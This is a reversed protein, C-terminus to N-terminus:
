ELEGEVQDKGSEDGNRGIFDIGSRRRYLDM